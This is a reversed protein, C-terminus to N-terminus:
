LIELVQAKRKNSFVKTPPNTLVSLDNDNRYNADDSPNFVGNNDPHIGLFKWWDDEKILDRQNQINAYIHKDNGTSFYGEKLKSIALTLRLAEKKANSNKDDDISKTDIGKAYAWISGDENKKDKYLIPNYQEMGIKDGQFKSYDYYEPFSPAADLMPNFDPSLQEDAYLRPNQLTITQTGSGDAGLNTNISSITGIISPFMQDLVVAPFGVLRYPCYSTVFELSRSAFRANFWQLDVLESIHETLKSGTVKDLLQDQTLNVWNPKGTNNFDSIMNAYALEAGTPSQGVVPQIGRWKEESTFETIPLNNADTKVDLRPAYHAFLSKVAMSDTFRAMLEYPEFYMRTPEQLFNRQYGMGTVQDPFFINTRIPMVYDYIPKFMITTIGQSSYTPAAFEVFDYVIANLLYTLIQSFPTIGNFSQIGGMFLEIWSELHLLNDAMDNAITDCRTNMKLSNNLVKYYPNCDALTALLSAITEKLSKTKDLVQSFAMTLTRMAIDGFYWNGTASQNTRDLDVGTLNYQKIGDQEPVDGSSKSSILYFNTNVVNTISFNVPTLYSYNWNGSLGTFTLTVNRTQYDKKLGVNALEGEFILYYEDDILYFLHALTKPLLFPMMMKAPVEFTAQIPNGISEYISASNFPVQLGELYLKCNIKKVYTM